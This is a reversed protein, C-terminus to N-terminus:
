DEFKEFKIDKDKEIQYYEKIIRKEDKSLSKHVNVQIKILQDGRSTKGLKPIGKGKIRLM